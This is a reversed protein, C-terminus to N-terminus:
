AVVNEKKVVAVFECGSNCTALVHDNTVSLNLTTFFIVCVHLQSDLIPFSFHVLNIEIHRELLEVMLEVHGVLVIIYSSVEHM